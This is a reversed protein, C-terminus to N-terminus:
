AGSDIPRKADLYEQGQVLYYERREQKGARSLLCVAKVALLVRVSVYWNVHGDM